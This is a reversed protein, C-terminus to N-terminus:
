VTILLPESFTNKQKRGTTDWYSLLLANNMLHRLGLHRQCLWRSRSRNPCRCWHPYSLLTLKQALKPPILDAQPLSQWLRLVWSAVPYTSLQVCSPTFLFVSENLRKQKGQMFYNAGAVLDIARQAQLQNMLTLNLLVTKGSRLALIAQTIEALEIPKMVVVATLSKTAKPMWVVNNM